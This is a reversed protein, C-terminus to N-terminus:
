PLCWILSMLHWVQSLNTKLKKYFYEKKLWQGGIYPQCLLVSSSLCRLVNESQM